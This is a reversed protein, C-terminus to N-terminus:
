IRVEKYPRITKHHVCRAIYYALNTLAQEFPYDTDSDCANLSLKDNPFKSLCMCEYTTVMFPAFFECDVKSPILKYSIHDYGGMQVEIHSNILRVKIDQETFDCHEEKFKKAMIAKIENHTLM